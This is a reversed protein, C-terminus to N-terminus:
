VSKSQSFYLSPDSNIWGLSELYAHCPRGRNWHIMGFYVGFWGSSSFFIISYVFYYKFLNIHEVMPGTAMFKRSLIMNRCLQFGNNAGRKKEWFSICADMRLKIIQSLLFLFHMFLESYNSFRALPGSFKHIFCM